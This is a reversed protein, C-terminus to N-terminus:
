RADSRYKELFSLNFVGGAFKFAFMAVHAFLSVAALTWGWSLTSRIFTGQDNRTTFVKTVGEDALLAPFVLWVFVLGAAVIFFGGATFAMQLIRTREGMGGFLEIVLNVVALALPVAALIGLILVPQEADQRQEDSLDGQARFPAYRITREQSPEETETPAGPPVQRGTSHYFSYWPLFVTTALLLVTIAMIGLTWPSREM